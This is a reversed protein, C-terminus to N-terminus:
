YSEGEDIVADIAFLVTQNSANCCRIEYHEWGPLFIWAAEAWNTVADGSTHAALLPRELVLTTSTVINFIRAIEFRGAVAFCIVDGIALGTGSVVVVQTDGASASSSLTTATCANVQSVFDFITSPICLTNGDTRRISVYAPRNLVTAVSRGFRIGILAGQKTRLDLTRLSGLTNATLSVPAEVQTYTPTKKLIDPM